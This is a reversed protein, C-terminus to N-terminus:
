GCANSGRFSISQYALTAAADAAMNGAIYWLDLLDTASELKRHSKVKVIKFKDKHWYQALERILDGNSFKHLIPHFVYCNIIDVVRCVYSADTVFEVSPIPECLNVQKAAHLIAYLEARAVTQDGPVIGVASVHFM